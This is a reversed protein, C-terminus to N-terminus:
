RDESTIRTVQERFWMAGPERAARSHWLMAVEFGPTAIPTETVRLGMDACISHALRAPMAATARAGKLMFPIALFNPTSMVVFRREGDGELLDDLPGSYDGRTSMVIHPTELWEDLGPKAAFGCAEPDFVCAYRERYLLERHPAGHANPFAGVALDIDGRDLDRAVRDCDTASVILRCHPAETLMRNLLPKLIALQAYDTAGVRFHRADRRPDFAPRAFLTNEINALIERIPGELELGRATPAVGSPTRIFLPDGVLERLRKLAHSAAPQGIHLREAAKTVSRTQILADFVVLLNLDANRVDNADIPNM